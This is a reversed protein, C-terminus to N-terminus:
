GQAPASKKRAKATVTKKDDNAVGATQAKEAEMAARSPTWFQPDRSLAVIAEARLESGKHTNLIKLIGDTSTPLRGAKRSARRSFEEHATVKNAPTQYVADVFGIAKAQEGTLWTDRELVIDWFEHNLGTHRVYVNTLQERLETILDANILIDTQQSRDGGGSLPQHLMVWSNNSALRKDGAVLLISGMSAALGYVQTEIPCTIDRMTDYIALGALVSGGPSNILVKIKEDKNQGWLFMLSACAIAAMGDDVGGDLRIIRNKMLLSFLDWRSNDSETVTPMMRNAVPTDGAANAMAVSATMAEVNAVEKDTLKSAWDIKGEAQDKLAAFITPVRNAIGDLAGSDKASAVVSDIATRIDKNMSTM